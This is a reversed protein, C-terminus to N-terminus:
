HTADKREEKVTTPIMGLFYLYIDVIAHYLEPPIETGLKLRTLLTATSDDEYVPVGARMAAETIREATYGMGAAVVIPANNREPDYKLAAARKQKLNEYKSM